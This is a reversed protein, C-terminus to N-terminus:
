FFLSRFIPSPPIIWVYNLASSCSKSLFSTSGKHYHRRVSVIQYPHVLCVKVENALWNLWSVQPETNSISEVRSHLCLKLRNGQWQASTGTMPCLPPTPKMNCAKIPKAQTINIQTLSSPLTWSGGGCPLIEITPCSSKPSLTAYGRIPTHKTLPNTCSPAMVLSKPVTSSPPPATHPKWTLM